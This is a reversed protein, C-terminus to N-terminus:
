IKNHKKLNTEITANEIKLLFARKRMTDFYLKSVVDFLKISEETTKDQLLLQLIRNRDFDFKAEKERKSEILQKRKIYRSLSRSEFFNILKKM